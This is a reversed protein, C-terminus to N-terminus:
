KKSDLKTLENLEKHFAHMNIALEVLSNNLTTLTEVTSFPNRSKNATKLNDIYTNINKTNLANDVANLSTQLEKIYLALDVLAPYSKEHQLKTKGMFWGM